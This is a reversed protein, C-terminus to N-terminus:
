WGDLKQYIAILYQGWPGNKERYPSIRKAQIYDETQELTLVAFRSDNDIVCKICDRSIRSHPIKTRNWYNQMMTMLTARRKRERYTLDEGSFLKVAKFKEHAARM